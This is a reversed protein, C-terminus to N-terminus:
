QGIMAEITPIVAPIMLVTTTNDRLHAFSVVFSSCRFHPGDRLGVLWNNLASWIPPPIGTPRSDDRGAGGVRRRSDLDDTTSVPANPRRGWSSNRAVSGLDCIPYHVDHQRRESEDRQRGDDDDDGDRHLQRGLTGANRSPCLDIM